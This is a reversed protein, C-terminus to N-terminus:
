SDTPECTIVYTARVGFCTSHRNMQAKTKLQIVCNSSSVVELDDVTGTTSAGSTNFYQWSCVHLTPADKAMIDHTIAFRYDHTANQSYGYLIPSVCAGKQVYRRCRMLATAPDEKVHPYAVDGEFVDVYTLTIENTGIPCINIKLKNNYDGLNNDWTSTTLASIKFKGFNKEKASAGPTVTFTCVVGDAMASITYSTTKLKGLQIFQTFYGQITSSMGVLKVGDCIAPHMKGSKIPFVDVQYARWMDVSYGSKDGFNYWDGERQNCQLDGNILLNQKYFGHNANNLPAVVTFMPEVITINVGSLKVRYMPMEHLVAGGLINGKTYLPDVATGETPTGRVVVFEVSEVGTNTDKTYRLVILDNRNMSQVGDSITVDLSTGYDLNVHRGQMSLSGDLIRITNSTVIQAEFKKGTAFVYEGSGVCGANFIGQDAATIHANGKYGTVLHLPM